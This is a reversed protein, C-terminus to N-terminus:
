QITWSSALDAKTYNPLNGDQGLEFSHDTIQYSGDPQPRSPRDERSHRVIEGLGSTGEYGFSKECSRSRAFLAV